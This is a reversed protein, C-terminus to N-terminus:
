LSIIEYYRRFAANKKDIQENYSQIQLGLPSTSNEPVTRKNFREVFLKNRRLIGPYNKLLLKEVVSIGDIYIPKDPILFNTIEYDSRKVEKATAIM